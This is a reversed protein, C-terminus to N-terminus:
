PVLPGYDALEFSATPNNFHLRGYLVGAGPVRNTQKYIICTSHMGGGNFGLYVVLDYFGDRGDGGDM